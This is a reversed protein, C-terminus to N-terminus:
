TNKTSQLNTWFLSTEDKPLLTDELLTLNESPFQAAAWAHQKSLEWSRTFLPLHPHAQDAACLPQKNVILLCASSFYRWYRQIPERADMSPKWPFCFRAATGAAFNHSQTNSLIKLVDRQWEPKLKFSSLTKTNYCTKICSFCHMINWNGYPPRLELIVFNRFIHQKRNIKSKDRQTKAEKCVFTWARWGRACM